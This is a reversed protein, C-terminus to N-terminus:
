TGPAATEDAVLEGYDRFYELDGRRWRRMDELACRLAFLTMLAAGLPVSLKIWRTSIDSAQSRIHVPGLVMQVGYWAILGAALATALKAFIIVAPRVKLPLRRILMPIHVHEWRYMIAASGIFVLWVLCWTAVEESWVISSNLAYRFFIQACLIAIIATSLAASMWRAAADLAALLRDLAAIM